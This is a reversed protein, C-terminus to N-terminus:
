RALRSRTRRRRRVLSCELSLVQNDYVADLTPAPTIADARTFEFLPAAVNTTEIYPQSLVNTM